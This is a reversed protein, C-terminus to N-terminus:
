CSNNDLDMLILPCDSIVVVKKVCNLLPVLPLVHEWHCCEHVWITPIHKILFYPWLTPNLYIQVICNVAWCSMSGLVVNQCPYSLNLMSTMYGVKNIIVKDTQQLHLAGETWFVFCYYKYCRVIEGLHVYCHRSVFHVMYFLQTLIQCPTPCM